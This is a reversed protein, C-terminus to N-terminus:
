IELLHGMRLNELLSWWNKPLRLDFPLHSKLFLLNLKFINQNWANHFGRKSFLLFKQIFQTRILANADHYVWLPANANMAYRFLCKCWSMGMLFCKCWLVNPMKMETLLCKCWLYIRASSDDHIFKTNAGRCLVNADHIADRFPSCTCWISM